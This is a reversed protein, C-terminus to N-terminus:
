IRTKPQFHCLFPSPFARHRYRRFVRSEDRGIGKMVELDDLPIRMLMKYKNADLLGVLSNPCSTSRCIKVKITKREKKRPWGNTDTKESHNSERSNVGRAFSCAFRRRQEFLDDVFRGGFKRSPTSVIDITEKDHRKQAQHQHHRPSRLLSVFGTGEAHGPEVSHHGFRSSRFSQPFPSFFRLAAHRIYNRIFGKTLTWRRVRMM